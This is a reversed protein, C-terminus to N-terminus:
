KILKFIGAVSNVIDTGVGVSKAVQGIIKESPLYKNNIQLNTVQEVIQNIQQESLKNALKLKELELAAKEDALAVLLQNNKIKYEAEEREAKTTAYKAEIQAETIRAQAKLTDDADSSLISQVQYMTAIDEDKLGDKKFFEAKQEIRRIAEVENVSDIVYALSRTLAGKGIDVRDIGLKRLTDNDKVLTGIKEDIIKEKAKDDRKLANDMQTENYKQLATKQTPSLGNMMNSSNILGAGIKDLIFYALTRDAQKKEEPNLPNGYKDKKINGFENNLYRSIAFHPLFDKLRAANEKDTLKKELKSSRIGFIKEAYDVMDDYSEFADNTAKKGYDKFDKIMKDVSTEPEPTTVAAKNEKVTKSEQVANAVQEPTVKKDNETKDNAKNVNTISDTVDAVQSGWLVNYLEPNKEQINKALAAVDRRAAVATVAKSSTKKDYYDKLQKTVDGLFAENGTEKALEYVKIVNDAITNISLSNEIVKKAKNIDFTWKGEDSGDDTLAFGYKAREKDKKEQEDAQRKGIAMFEADTAKDRAKNAKNIKNAAKKNAKVAKETGEANEAETFAEAAKETAKNAKKQANKAKSEANILINQVPKEETEVTEPIAKKNKLQEAVQDKISTSKGEPTIIEKNLDQTNVNNINLAM